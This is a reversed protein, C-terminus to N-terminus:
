NIVHWDKEFEDAEIYNWHKITINLFGHNPLRRTQKEEKGYYSIVNPNQVSDEESVHISIWQSTAKNGQQFKFNYISSDLKAKKLCEILKGSCQVKYRKQTLKNEVIDGKQPLGCGTILVVVFILKVFNKM